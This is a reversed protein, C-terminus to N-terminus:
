FHTAAGFEARLLGTDRLDAERPDYGQHFEAQREASLCRM